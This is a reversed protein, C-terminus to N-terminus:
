VEMILNKFSVGESINEIGFIDLITAAVDAFSDRTKLDTGPKIDKGYALFPVYERTHDTGKFGPDCGHDASIMVIDRDGMLKMLEGLQRDFASIARAYGDIDRRHGYIMDTDVLNVFCLGEFSERALELTKNMGDTNDTTRQTSQIGAGAFIDYIKGIGYTAFGGAKLADLMTARPPTLSYDHRGSTRKFSGPEGNFPRAIVRGVAHKGKLMERALECYRYLEELPVIDEHAAIQFVSDASTYVILKGTEMHERGYAEIVETGSYPLNCLIDRGTLRKFEDLVEDPFGEPYTPMPEKSVIGALEWHGTTTDKGNSAERLRAFAGTPEKEGKAHDTGEINFLGMRNMNPTFYEDSAAISRLTDAGEDGFEKADPEYGIGLSDLVILFIRRKDM